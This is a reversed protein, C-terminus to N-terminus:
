VGASAAPRARMADAWRTFHVLTEPAKFQVMRAFDLSVFAVIDAMTIRDAAIFDSEALRRDFVKL